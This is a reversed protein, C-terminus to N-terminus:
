QFRFEKSFYIELALEQFGVKQFFFIFNVGKKPNRISTCFIDSLLVLLPSILKNNTTKLLQNM